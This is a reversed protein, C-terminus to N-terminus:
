RLAVNQPWDPFLPDEASSRTVLQPVIAVTSASRVRNSVSCHSVFRSSASFLRSCGSSLRTPLRKAELLVATENHLLIELNCHFRALRDSRVGRKARNVTISRTIAMLMTPTHIALTM